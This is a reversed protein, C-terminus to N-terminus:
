ELTSTLWRGLEEIGEIRPVEPFSAFPEAPGHLRIPRGYRLALEVESRTGAKGPLAVIADATLVNVHNRSMPDTGKTGSLPLHTRIPIEVADNPYGPRWQPGPLVGVCVGRRPEVRVFSESVARMVGAGGGTLLHHGARAIWAGLPWALHEHPESGSGMVGVIKLRPM